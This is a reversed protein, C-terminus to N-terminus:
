LFLRSFCINGLGRGSVVAAGGDLASGGGIGGVVLVMAAAEAGTDAGGTSEGICYPTGEPGGRAFFSGLLPSSLRFLFFSPYNSLNHMTSSIWYELYLIDREQQQEHSQVPLIHSM